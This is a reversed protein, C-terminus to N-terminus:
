VAQYHPVGLRLILYDELIIGAARKQMSLRLERLLGKESIEVWLPGTNSWECVLPM